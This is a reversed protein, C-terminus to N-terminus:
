ARTEGQLLAGGLVSSFLGPYMATRVPSLAGNEILVRLSL